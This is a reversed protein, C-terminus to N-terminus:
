RDIGPDRVGCLMILEPMLEAFREVMAEMADTGMVSGGKRVYSIFRSSQTM